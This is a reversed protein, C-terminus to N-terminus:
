VGFVAGVLALTVTGMLAAAVVTLVMGAAIL